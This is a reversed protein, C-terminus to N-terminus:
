ILLVFLNNSFRGLTQFGGLWFVVSGSFVSGSFVSGSFCRGQFCRGQFCRGQFYRGQFVGVRFFVSGSFVSGSFVTLSLHPDYTEFKVQYRPWTEQCIRSITEYQVVHFGQGVNSNFM